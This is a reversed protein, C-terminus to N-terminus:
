SLLSGSPVYECFDMERFHKLQLSCANIGDNVHDLMKRANSAIANVAAQKEECQGSLLAQRENLLNRLMSIEVNTEILDRKSSMSSKITAIQTQISEMAFTNHTADKGLLNHMLMMKETVVNRHEIQKIRFYESFQPQMFLAKQENVAIQQADLSEIIADKAQRVNAQSALLAPEVSSKMECTNRQIQIVIECMKEYILQMKDDIVNGISACKDVSLRMTNVLKSTNDKHSKMRQIIDDIHREMAKFHSIYQSFDISNLKNILRGNWKSAM